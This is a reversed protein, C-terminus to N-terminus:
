VSLSRDLLTVETVDWVRATGDLSSSILRKGFSDFVLGTVWDTHGVLRVPAEDPETTLRIEGPLFSDPRYPGVPFDWITLAEAQALKSDWARLRLVSTERLNGV